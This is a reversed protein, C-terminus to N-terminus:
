VVKEDVIKPVIEVEVLPRINMPIGHKLSPRYGETTIESICRKEWDSSTRKDLEECNTEIEESLKKYDDLKAALQALFLAEGELEEKPSEESNLFASGEREFYYTMFLIGNSSYHDSGIFEEFYSFLDAYHAEVANEGSKSYERCADILESLGGIWEEKNKQVKQYFTPSFTEEFWEEDKEDELQELIELREQTSELFDEVMNATEQAIERDEESWSRPDDALLEQLSEQFQTIQQLGSVSKEYQEVAEAQESASLADDNRRREATKRRERLEAKRPELFQTELRDFMGSSLRHYDVFCAFGEGVPDAVTRNTTIKWIIPRRDMLNTHFDFLNNEIWSRINPYPETEATKSGLASDVERLYQDSKAEFVSSFREIVREHLTITDQTEYVPIIAGEEETVVELAFHHVLKKVLYKIDVELNEFNAESERSFPDESTRSKIEQRVGEVADQSLGLGERIHDDVEEAWEELKKERQRESKIVEVAYDELERQPNHTDIVESPEVKEAFLHDHFFESSSSRPLLEPGIYYPSTPDTTQGKIAETYQKEAIAQLEPIEELEKKWPIRNVIGPTWERDPTMSLFLGHYVDSNLVALLTWLNSEDEPFVMSGVHDFINGEPLYGFRRGTSKVKTWTLGARGFYQTNRLVSGPLPRMERGDARYLVEYDVHPLIWADSGGKAYPYSYSIDPTEWHKRLFRSNDGTSLGTAVDAVRKGDEGIEIGIKTDSQHLKRLEDPIAYNLPQWPIYEFESLPILYERQIDEDTSDSCIQSFTEEKNEADIDYLRMFTGEPNGSAGSRVVTGVTRVTANDLIGLGFEALFDFAGKEGIFDKRFKEFSRKFMFSRPVLMGIRGSDKVLRECVEFFSIYFDSNYDYRSELYSQISNPMRKQSGYPPNMLAVDYSQSLISLLRVFSKLDQALLSNESQRQSIEEQLNELFDTLSHDIDFSSGITLQKGDEFHESLTGRIDLLSGLGHIKEFADLITHFTEHIEPRDGAVEDFVEEAGEVDAIKADACVIGVESINFSDNGEERARTRAKLYLNFAALQCARMDLDVGYINNELIKRPIEGTDIGPKERRWIRELVDFAYLLFHGSGCAPDIIRIEEPTDFSTTAGSDSPVLYTCLEKLNPSEEFSASRNIREESSLKAQSEITESLEGKNELYLSGLSNDTLMRVVWHPTYFQNAAPVDDVDLGGSRAKSRIEELKSANYYEYVWGLVDDARWVENPVSDLMECLEKLTDDDPDILSYATSRDFLIEIEEALNDCANHYAELIAEDELLFEEHVLTEAAPTLGNDKFVTVEEDIFGRVEMCRLAALRNVITYGVGTVYQEFAESWTEGDVAELEIAEVLQQIDEDLSDKDEPEDDLGRQTLQFEVNDEVRERLETVVDELHEREHKNLQAKRQSLSDNAM